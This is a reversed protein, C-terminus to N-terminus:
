PAPPSPEFEKVEDTETEDPSLQGVSTQKLLHLPTKSAVYHASHHSDAHLSQPTPNSQQRAILTHESATTSSTSSSSASTSTSTSSSSAPAAAVSTQQNFAAAAAAPQTASAPTASISASPTTEATARLSAKETHTETSTPPNNNSPQSSTATNAASSTADATTSPNETRHTVPVTNSPDAATTHTAPITLPSRRNGHGVRSSSGRASGRGSGTGGVAGSTRARASSSRSRNAIPPLGASGPAPTTAKRQSGEKSARGSRNSAQGNRSGTHSSTNGGDEGASSQQSSLSHQRQRARFWHLRQDMESATLREGAKRKAGFVEFGACLADIDLTFSELFKVSHQVTSKYESYDVTGNGDHDVERLTHACLERVQEDSLNLVNEEKVAAELMARLEEVDILGDGNLDYLSFSFRIKEEMAAQPSLASITRVWHEFDIQKAHTIDFLRFITRALLTHEKLGMAETLEQPDIMGDRTASSAIEHFISQLKRLTPVDFHTKESLEHLPREEERLHDLPAHFPHTLEDITPDITPVGVGPAPGGPAGGGGYGGNPIIPSLAAAGIAPSPTRHYQQQQQRQPQNKLESARRKEDKKKQKAEKKKRKADARRSHSAGM